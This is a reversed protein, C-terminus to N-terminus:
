AIRAVFMRTWFLAPDRNIWMIAWITTWFISCTRSNTVFGLYKENFFYQMKKLENNIGAPPSYKVLKSLLQGNQAFMLKYPLDVQKHHLLHDFFSDLFWKSVTKSCRFFSYQNRVYEFRIKKWFIDKSAPSPVAHYSVDVVVTALVVITVVIASVAQVPDSLSVSVVGDGDGVVQVDESLLQHHLQRTSVSHVGLVKDLVGVDSETDQASPSLCPRCFVNDALLQRVFNCASSFQRVFNSLLKQTWKRESLILRHPKPCTLNQRVLKRGM